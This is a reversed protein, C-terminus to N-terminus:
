RGGVEALDCDATDERACYKCKASICMVDYIPCHEKEGNLDGPPDLYGKIACGDHCAYVCAFMKCIERM